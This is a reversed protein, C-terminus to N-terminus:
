KYREFTFYLCSTTITLTETSASVSVSEVNIIDQQSSTTGGCSILNPTLLFLSLTLLISKKM